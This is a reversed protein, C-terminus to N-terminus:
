RNIADIIKQSLIPSTLSNFAAEQANLDVLIFNQLTKNNHLIFDRNIYELTIARLDREATTEELTSTVVIGILENDRNVIAGGSSGKQAVVSGGVSILDLDGGGFTYLTNITAVSSAAYLEKQISLGGLFGAPYGAVLVGDDQNIEATTTFPTYPFSTPLDKIPDTRETIYLFAYDFEGTGKPNEQILLDANDEIWEPSIYLLKARYLPKAPSGVRIVCDIKAYDKLLYYQAIHANTLIVGDESIIVGSGSIPNLITTGTSCLINVVSERVSTNIQSFSVPVPTPTPVIVIDIPTEVIVPSEEVDPEEIIVEKEVVVVEEEEVVPEKKIIIEETEDITEPITIEVEADGSLIIIVVVFVILLFINKVFEFINQAM